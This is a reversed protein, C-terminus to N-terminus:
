RAKRKKAEIREDVNKRIQDIGFSAPAQSPPYEVFTELFAASRMVASATLYINEGRWQDYLAGSIEAHEYPDMRLNFMKPFRLETFPNSWVNLQGTQRQEAFVFKWDDFRM